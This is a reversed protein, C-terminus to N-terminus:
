RMSGCIAIVTRELIMRPNGGGTKIREDARAAEKLADVLEALSFRESKRMMMYIPYPNNPNPM